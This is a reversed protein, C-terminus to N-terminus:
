CHMAHLKLPYPWLLVPLLHWGLHRDVVQRLGQRLGSLHHLSRRLSRLPSIIVRGFIRFLSVKSFDAKKIQGRFKHLYGIRTCFLGKQGWVSNWLVMRPCFAGNQGRFNDTLHQYAYGGLDGTM